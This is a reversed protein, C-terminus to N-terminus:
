LAIVGKIQAARIYVDIVDEPSNVLVTSTISVYKGTRSPKAHYEMNNFIVALEDAKEHPAIFKFMYVSPWESENLQDRLGDYLSTDM